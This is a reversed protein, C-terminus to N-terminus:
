PKPQFGLPSGRYGHLFAVALCVFWPVCWIFHFIFHFIFFVTELFRELASPGHGVHIKWTSGVVNMSLSGSVRESPLPPPPLTSSLWCPYKLKDEKSLWCPCTPVAQIKLVKGFFTACLIFSFAVDGGDGDSCSLRSFVVLVLIGAVLWAIVVGEQPRPQPGRPHRRAPLEDARERRAAPVRRVHSRVAVGGEQGHQAGGCLIRWVMGALRFFFLFFHM